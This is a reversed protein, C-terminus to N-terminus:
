ARGDQEHEELRFTWGAIAKTGIRVFMISDGEFTLISDAIANIISKVNDLESKPLPELKTPADLWLNM